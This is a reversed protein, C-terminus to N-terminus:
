SDPKKDAIRITSYTTSLSISPQGAEEVFAKLLSYDNVERFSPDVPLEWIVDGGKSRAELPYAGGEPWLLFIDLYEGRVDIPGTLPRPELRVKGNSLTITTRGSFDSLAVVEYSTNIDITGADIERATIELSKGEAKINGRIRALKIKADRNSIDLSDAGNVELDSYHGHIVATGIDNLIIEEYSNRIETHGTFNTGYIEAHPADIFVDMELDELHLEGYRQTVTTKGRVGKIVTDSHGNEVTCDGEVNEILIDEYNNEARCDGSVNTAEIEGYANEIEARGVRDVTVKGYRNEVLVDMGEPVLIRFNTEFRKRKFERRNTSLSLAGPEKEVRLKLRDAVEQAQTEKKRWIRKDFRISISEQAGPDGQIEIDGHTNDIRIQPPFPPDIEITEEFSFDEYHVFIGDAWEWDIKGTQAHYFFVGAAIILILLIIEKTKM